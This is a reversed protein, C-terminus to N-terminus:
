AIQFLVFCFLVVSVVPTVLAATGWSFKQFIWRALVMMSLTAIGTCSAFNGMFTSYSNPDPFRQKLKAKWSVEVINICMASSVVLIAMDRLYKSHTLFKFSEKMSVKKKKKTATPQKKENEMKSVVKDQMHKYTGLMIGGSAVVAGMLYRLSTAWTDVDSGGVALTQKGVWKM